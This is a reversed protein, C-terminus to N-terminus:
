PRSIGGALESAFIGWNVSPMAAMQILPTKARYSLLTGAYGSALQRMTVPHNSPRRM